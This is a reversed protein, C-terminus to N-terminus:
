QRYFIFFIYRLCASIRDIVVAGGNVGVRDLKRRNWLDVFLKFASSSIKIHQNERDIKNAAIFLAIIFISPPTIARLYSIVTSDPSLGYADVVEDLSFGSDSLKKFEDVVTKVFLDMGGREIASWIIYMPLFKKTQGKERMERVAINCDKFAKVDFYMSNKDDEEHKDRIILDAGFTEQEESAPVIEVIPASSDCSVENSIERVIYFLLEATALEALRGAFRYLEGEPEFEVPEGETYYRAAYMWESGEPMGETKIADIASRVFCTYGKGRCVTTGLTM